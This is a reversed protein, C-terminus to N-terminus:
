AVGGATVAAKLTYQLAELKAKPLAYHAHLVMQGDKCLMHALITQSRWRGGENREQQSGRQAGMVTVSRIGKDATHVFLVSMFPDREIEPIRETIKQQLQGLEQASLDFVM